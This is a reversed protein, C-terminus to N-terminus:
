HPKETKPLGPRRAQLSCVSEELSLLEFPAFADHIERLRCASPASAPWRFHWSERGGALEFATLSSRYRVALYDGGQGVGALKVATREATLFRCCGRRIDPLLAHDFPDAVLRSNM